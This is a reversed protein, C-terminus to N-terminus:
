GRCSVVETVTAAGPEFDAWDGEFELVAVSATPFDADALSQLSPNHGVMVLVRVSPTCERAVDVLDGVSNDYIRRDTTVAPPGALRTAAIEWTQMARRAPSVVVEDPAINAALWRGIAAADREGRVSLPRHLDQGASEAKAHRVLVLRRTSM